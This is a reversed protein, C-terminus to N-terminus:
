IAVGVVGVDCFDGAKDSWIEFQSCEGLWM